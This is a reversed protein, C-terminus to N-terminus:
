DCEGIYPDQPPPLPPLPPLRLSWDYDVTTNQDGMYDLLHNMADVSGILNGGSINMGVLTCRRTNALSRGNHIQGGRAWDELLRIRDPNYPAGTEFSNTQRAGTYTGVPIFNDVTELTYGSFAPVEDTYMTVRGYIAGNTVYDRLIQIRTNTYLGTPDSFNIPNNTVYVYRHLTSPNRTSGETLDKIIFRGIASDYYRARYFYLKSESDLRRATFLYPNAIVGTQERITGFVDYDYSSVIAQSSNTLYRVSGLGDYHYYNIMGDRYMSILDDIKLSATYRALLQKNEDYESLINKGDRFFQTTIGNVTKSLREGTPSYTYNSTAMEPYTIQILRNEHDYTYTTAQGDETKSTLNGNNDYTYTTNGATLLRNAKDYIYNTTGSPTTMTLRNGVPDYTYSTQSNDPYNVKVLRYLPDYFYSEINNNHDIVSTINGVKDYSYNYSSIITGDQRRNTLSIPRGLIDYTHTTKTGNPFNVETIRSFGNYKYTTIEGDPNTLSIPRNLEDYQYTTVGGEPDTMTLRNGSPGYTYNISKGMTNNSLQILRHQSDYSFSANAFSNITSVNNSNADYSFITDQEIGPYDISVLRNLEDYIYNIINGNADVKKELNGVKDYFYQIANGLPDTEFVLRNLEDYTHTTKRSNADIVATMNGVEDYEYQTAYFGEESIWQKVCALRNLKDYEYTTKNGEADIKAILNGETNYVYQTINGLADTLETLKGLLSYEYATTISIPNEPDQNDILTESSVNGMTNYTYKVTNNKPNTAKKLRNLDDYEYIFTYGNADTRSLLNGSLDYSFTIVGDESDRIKTRNGSADYEYTTTNEEPEIVTKLLGNNYYTYLTINGKPDKRTILNGKQDYEYTAANGKPDTETQVKNFRLDYAYSWTERKPNKQTIVNSNKDYGYEWANGKKDTQKLLNFRDDRKIVGRENYVDTKTFESQGTLYHYFTSNNKSDKLITLAPERVEIPYSVEETINAVKFLKGTIIKTYEYRREIGDPGVISSVKASMKDEKSYAINVSSGNPYTIKTLNHRSDYQFSIINGEPDIVEALDGSFTNYRYLYIGGQPDVCSIIRLGDYQFSLRRGSTDEIYLLKPFIFNQYNGYSWELRLYNGNLDEKKILLGYRNFYDRTGNQRIILFGDQYSTLTLKEFESSIYTFTSPDKYFKITKGQESIIEITESTINIPNIRYSTLNDTWGYGFAGDYVAHSNYTRELKLPFGLAPINFDIQTLLFKGEALKVKCNPNFLPIHPTIKDESYSIGVFLLFFIILFVIVRTDVRKISQM